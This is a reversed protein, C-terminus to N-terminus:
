PGNASFGSFKLKQRANFNYLNITGTLKGFGVRIGSLDTLGWTGAIPAAHVAFNSDLMCLSGTFDIRESDRNGPLFASAYIPSCQANPSWGVAPGGLDFTIDIEAAGKATHGIRNGTARGTLELCDCLGSPCLNNFDSTGCAGAFDLSSVTGIFTATYSGARVEATPGLGFIVAAVAAWSWLRRM